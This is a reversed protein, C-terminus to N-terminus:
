GQKENKILTGWSTQAHLLILRLTYRNYSRPDDENVCVSMCVSKPWKCTCGASSFVSVKWGLGTQSSKLPCLFPCTLPLRSLWSHSLCRHEEQTLEHSQWQQWMILLWYAEMSRKYMDTPNPQLRENTACNLYRPWIISWLHASIM